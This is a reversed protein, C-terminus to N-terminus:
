GPPAMYLGEIEVKLDLRCIDGELILLQASSGLIRQFRERVAPLELKDRLFLRLTQAQWRRGDLHDQAGQALLADINAMTEEIQAMTDDPHRTAHGVVSATGSVLLQDTDGFRAYKARSFSPSRPGYERPYEFASVQRPNEVQVGPNKAALFYILLGPEHMGIATAAPLQREFGPNGALAQHRGLCFQRYREQDNRGANIGSLFNWVRLLRPYGQRELFAALRAYVKFSAAAMSALEVELVYIHGFLFEGNRAYGIGEDRDFDVPRDSTWLEVPSEMGMGIDPGMNPGANLMALPDLTLPIERPDDGCQNQRGFRVCAMVNRKLGTRIESLPAFRSALAGRSRDPALSLNPSRM